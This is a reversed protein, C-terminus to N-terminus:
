SSSLAFWQEALSRLKLDVNKFGISSDTLPVQCFSSHIYYYKLDAAVNKGFPYDAPYAIDFDAEMLDEGAGSYGAEALEEPTMLERPKQGM